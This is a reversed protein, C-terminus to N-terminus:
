QVSTDSIHEQTLREDSGLVCVCVPMHKKASICQFETNNHINYHFVTIIYQFHLLFANLLDYTVNIYRLRRSATAYICACVCM